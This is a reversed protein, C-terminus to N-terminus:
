KPVRCVAVRHHIWIGLKTDTPRMPFTSLLSPRKSNASTNITRAKLYCTTMNKLFAKCAFMEPLYTHITPDEIGRSTPWSADLRPWRSRPRGFAFTLHIQLPPMLHSCNSGNIPSIIACPGWGVWKTMWKPDFSRVLNVVWTRIALIFVVSYLSDASRGRVLSTHDSISGRLYQGPTLRFSPRCISTRLFLILLATRAIPARCSFPPTIRCGVMRALSSFKYLYSPVWKVLSPLSIKNCSRLLANCFM